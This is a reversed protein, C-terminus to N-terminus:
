AGTVLGVDADGYGARNLLQAAAQQTEMSQSRLIEGFPGAADKFPSAEGATEAAPKPVPKPRDEKIVGEFEVNSGHLSPDKPQEM